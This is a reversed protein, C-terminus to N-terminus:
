PQGLQSEDFTRFRYVEAQRQARVGSGDRQHCRCPCVGLVDSQYAPPPITDPVHIQIVPAKTILGEDCRPSVGWGDACRKLDHEDNPHVIWVLERFYQYAEPDTAMRGCSSRVFYEIFKEFEADNGFRHEFMFPDISERATFLKGNVWVRLELLVNTEHFAPRYTGDKMEYRPSKPDPPPPPLKGIWDAVAQMHAEGCAEASRVVWEMNRDREADTNGLNNLREILQEPTPQENDTM